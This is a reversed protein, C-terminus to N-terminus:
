TKFWAQFEQRDVPHPFGSLFDYETVDNISMNINYQKNIHPILTAPCTVTGDIDIGFRHKLTTM